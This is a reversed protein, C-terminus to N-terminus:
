VTSFSLLMQCPVQFCRVGCHKLCQEQGHQQLVSAWPMGCKPPPFHQSPAAQSWGGRTQPFCVFRGLWPRCQQPLPEAWGLAWGARPRCLWAPSAAPCRAYGQALLRAEAWGNWPNASDSSVALPDSSCCDKLFGVLCGLTVLSPRFYCSRWLSVLDTYLTSMHCLPIAKTQSSPLCTNWWIFFSSRSNQQVTACVSLVCAWSVLVLFRCKGDLPYWAAFGSPAVPSGLYTTWAQVGQRQQWPCWAEAHAAALAPAPTSIVYCADPGSQSIRSFCKSHQWVETGNVRM